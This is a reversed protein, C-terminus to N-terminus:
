KKITKNRSSVSKVTQGDPLITPVESKQKGRNLPSTSISPTNQFQVTLVPETQQTIIKSRNSHTVRKSKGPILISGDTHIVSPLKRTNHHSRALGSPPGTEPQVVARTPSVVSTVSHTTGTCISKRREGPIVGPSPNPLSIVPLGTTHTIQPQDYLQDDSQVYLQDNSRNHTIEEEIALDSSDLFEDSSSSTSHRSKLQDNSTCQIEATVKSSRSFENQSQVSDSLTHHIDDAVQSSNISETQGNQGNQGNPEDFSSNQEEAIQSQVSTYTSANSTPVSLSQIFNELIEMQTTYSLFASIHKKKKKADKQDFHTKTDKQDFHSPLNGRKLKELQVVTSDLQRRNQLCSTSRGYSCTLQSYNISSRPYIIRGASYCIIKETSLINDLLNDQGTKRTKHHELLLTRNAILHEKYTPSLDNFIATEKDFHLFFKNLDTENQVQNEMTLLCVSNSPPCNKDLLSVVQIWLKESINFGLHVAPNKIEKLRNRDLSLFEPKHCGGKQKFIKQFAM